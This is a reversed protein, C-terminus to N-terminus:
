PGSPVATHSAAEVPPATSDLVGGELWLHEEGLVQQALRYARVDDNRFLRRFRDNIRRRAQRCFLDALAAVSSAVNAGATSTGVSAPAMEAAHPHERLMRVRSCSAAMAFLESGIEVLRGLVAQKKELRAGHVVMCHIVARALRRSTREVYRLHKALPGFQAFRPWYGWGLWLLPYTVAYHAAAHGLARLRTAMSAQPDILPGAVKLHPDVAERAIFLRMIESSGEFLTNIRFDRLLREVPIGPEGRGAMSGATEYGRGGRIQLTDDTIRWGTETAYMKAIAAELRIDRGGLCALGTALEAVAEMAFTDAAMSALKAAIAEHKGIPAGWQQRESAWRRSIRLCSKAAGVCSAPVTLRGTNLTILALKLGLGEGWLINERPVRVDRLRFLGNEIARLGMFHCRHALEFGPTSSEVIFATIQPRERGRVMKSPTRAMVVLIGAIPGNTCWLKEGNLLFAQGDETPTATTKMAAPDSGVEPETLAFASIEGRALRPLYRRKQEETGFLMLPQPVGISQHASLLVATSACRSGVLQIARTYTSLPLGLGGYEAPIKIGFAGLRRLGDIVEQPIKGERDITNGDVHDHLFAELRALFEQGRARDEESEHPFPDILDMRLRGLFLELVFSPYEWRSERAAEVVDRAVSEHHSSRNRDPM